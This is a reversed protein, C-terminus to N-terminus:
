PFVVHIVVGALQQLPRVVYNLRQTGAQLPLGQVEFTGLGSYM